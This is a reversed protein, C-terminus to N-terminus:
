TNKKDIEIYITRSLKSEFTLYRDGNSDQQNIIIIPQGSQGGPQQQSYQTGGHTATGGHQYTTGAQSQPVVPGRPQTYSQPQYVQPRNYSQPQAGISPLNKRM